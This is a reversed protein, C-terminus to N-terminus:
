LDNASAIMEALDMVKIKNEKEKNKVGDTLM